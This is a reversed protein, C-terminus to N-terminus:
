EVEREAPAVSLAIRKSCNRREGRGSMRVTLTYRGSLGSIDATASFGVDGMNPKQFYLNVDPRPTITAILSHTDGNEATLTIETQDPAVGDSISTAAWGVVRLVSKISVPLKEIPRGNIFDISCDDTELPKEAASAAAEKTFRNFLLSGAQAQPPINMKVIEVSLTKSWMWHAYSRGVVSISVSRPRGEAFYSARDPLELALFDNTSRVLPSVVFGSDGIEAIYRFQHVAGDMLHFEIQLEPPKYALGFLKGLLTPRLDVRAWLVASTAPLPIEEGLKYAGSVVPPNRLPPDKM